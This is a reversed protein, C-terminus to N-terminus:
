KLKPKEELERLRATLESIRKLLKQTERGQTKWAQKKEKDAERRRGKEFRIGKAAGKRARKIDEFAVNTTHRQLRQALASEKEANSARQNAKEVARQLRRIEDQLEANTMPKVFDARTPKPKAVFPIGRTRAEAM